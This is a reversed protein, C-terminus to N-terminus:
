SGIIVIDFNFVDTAPCDPDVELNLIVERVEGPSLDSNDYNWSLTSYSECIAPIWSDTDLGLMVNTDGNNKIYITASSSSGAEIEGWEISSLTATCGQDEYIDIEVEPEPPPPTPASPPPLIIVEPTSEVIIGSSGVRETSQLLGTVSLSAITMAAALIAVTIIKLNQSGM